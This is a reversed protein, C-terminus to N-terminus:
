VAQSIASSNYACFSKQLVVIHMMDYETIVLEGVIFSYEM